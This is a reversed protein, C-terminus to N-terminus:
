YSSYFYCDLLTAPSGHAANELAQASLHRRLVLHQTFHASFSCVLSTEEPHPAPVLGLAGQIAGSPCGQSSLALPVARPCLGLPCGPM